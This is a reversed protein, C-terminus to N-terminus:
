GPELDDFPRTACESAGMRKALEEATVLFTKARDLSAAYGQSNGTQQYVIYGLRLGSYYEDLYNALSAIQEREQATAGNLQEVDAALRRGRQAWAGVVEPGKESPLGLAEVDARADECLVALQEAVLTREDGGGCGAAALVAVVAAFALAPRM